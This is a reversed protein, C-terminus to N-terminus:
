KYYKREAFSDSIIFNLQSLTETKNNQRMAHQLYALVTDVANVCVVSESTLIVHAIKHMGLGSGRAYAGFIIIFLVAHRMHAVEVQGSALALTGYVLNVQRKTMTVIVISM